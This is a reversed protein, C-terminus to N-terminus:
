EVVFSCPALRQSNAQTSAMEFVLVVGCWLSVVQLRILGIPGIIGVPVPPGAVQSNQTQNLETHGAPVPLAVGCYPTANSTGAM